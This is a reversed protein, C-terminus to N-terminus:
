YHLITLFHQILFSYSKLLDRLVGNVNKNMAMVAIQM